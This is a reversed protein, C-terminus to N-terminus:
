IRHIIKDSPKQFTKTRAPWLAVFSMGLREFCNRPWLAYNTDFQMKNQRKLRRFETTSINQTALFLHLVVLGGSILGVSLYYIGAIGAMWTNEALWLDLWMHAMTLAALSMCSSFAVFFSYNNRGVCNGLLPCHHDFLQVCRNCVRCHKSRPPKVIRCKHCLSSSWNINGDDDSSYSFLREMIHTYESGNPASKTITGPDLRVACGFFFWTLALLAAHAQVKYTDYHFLVGGYWCPVIALNVAQFYFPVNKLLNLWHMMRAGFVRHLVAQRARQRARATLFKAVATHGKDKAIDLPTAGKSDVSDETAAQVTSVLFKVAKLHGRLAALHLPTQGYSDVAHFLSADLGLEDNYVCCAELLDTADKYAAWHLFTDGSRDVVTSDAGRKLLFLVVMAHGYQAGLLLPTRQKFKDTANLLRQGFEPLDLLTRLTSINNAAAAWHIPLLGNSDTAEVQAGHDVFIHVLSPNGLQAAWHLLTAENGDTLTVWQPNEVLVADLLEMTAEQKDDECQTSGDSRHRQLWPAETKIFDFLDDLTQM